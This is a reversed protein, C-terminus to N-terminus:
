KSVLRLRKKERSTLKQLVQVIPQLQTKITTILLTKTMKTLSLNRQKIVHISEKGM